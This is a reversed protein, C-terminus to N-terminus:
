LVHGRRTQGLPIDKVFSGVSSIPITSSWRGKRYWGLIMESRTMPLGLEKCLRLAIDYSSCFFDAGTDMHFGEVSDGAFRGGVHDGAEFLTPAYGRKKLAYAASLGAAGGGIIVIKCKNM